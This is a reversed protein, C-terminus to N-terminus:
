QPETVLCLNLAEQLLAQRTIALGCTPCTLFGGNAVLATDKCRPCAPTGLVCSPRTTTPFIAMCGGKLETFQSPRRGFFGSSAPHILILVPGSFNRSNYLKRFIQLPSFTLFSM